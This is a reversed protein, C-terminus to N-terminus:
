HSQSCAGPSRQYAMRAAHALDVTHERKKSSAQLMLCEEVCMNITPLAALLLSAVEPWDEDQPASWDAGILSNCIPLVTALQGNRGIVRGAVGLQASLCPASAGHGCQERAALPHLGRQRPGRSHQCWGGPQLTGCTGTLPRQGLQWHRQSEPPTGEGGQSARTKM